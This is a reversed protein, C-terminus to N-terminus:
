LFLGWNIVAALGVALVAAKSLSRAEAADPLSEGDPATGPLIPEHWGCNVQTAM